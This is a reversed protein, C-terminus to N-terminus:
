APRCLARALMSVGRWQWLRLKKHVKELMHLPDQVRWLGPGGRCLAGIGFIPGPLATDKQEGRDLDRQNLEGTSLLQLCSATSVRSSRQCLLRFVSVTLGRALAVPWSGMICAEQVVYSSHDLGMVARRHCADIFMCLSREVQIDPAAMLCAMYLGCVGANSRSEDHVGPGWYDPQHGSLHSKTEVEIRAGHTSDWSKSCEDYTMCGAHMLSKEFSTTRFRQASCLRGLLSHQELLLAMLVALQIKWFVLCCGLAQPPCLLCTRRWACRSLLHRKCCWLSQLGEQFNSTQFKGM